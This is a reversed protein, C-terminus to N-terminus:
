EERDETEPKAEKKIVERGKRGETEKGGVIWGWRGRDMGGEGKKERDKGSERGARKKGGKRRSDLFIIPLFHSSVTLYLFLFFSLLSLSVHLSPLFVSLRLCIYVSLSLCLSFFIVNLFILFILFLSKLLLSM